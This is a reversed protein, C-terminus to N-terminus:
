IKTIFSYLFSFYLFYDIIDETYNVISYLLILIILETCQIQSLVSM